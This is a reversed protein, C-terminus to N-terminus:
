GARSTSRTPRTCRRSRAPSRMPDAASCRWCPSTSRSCCRAPSRHWRGLGARAAAVRPQRPKAGALAAVSRPDVKPRIRRLTEYLNRQIQQLSAPGDPARVICARSASRWAPMSCSSCRITSAASGEAGQGAGRLVPRRRHARRLLPEAHQIPDLCAPGRDPHEPRHRRRHRLAHIEGHQAQQEPIGASRIEKEFFEIADAVQEMLSRSRPACCRSACAASCCCCRDPRACSRITTRRSWSKSGCTPGRQGARGAQPAAGADLDM